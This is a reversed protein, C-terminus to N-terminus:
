HPVACVRLWSRAVFNKEPLEVTVDTYDDAAMQGPLIVDQYLFDPVVVVFGGGTHARLAARVPPSDLLRHVAIASTGVWGNPAPEVLGRHLAVRLRVRDDGLESNAQALAHGLGTLFEPIVVSEDIGAPLIAFQGDGQPQVDVASEDLGAASRAVALMRVLHHQIRAASANGHRSYGEVDAAVCLRVAAATPRGGGAEWPPAGLSARGPAPTGTGSEASEPEAPEPEAPPLPEVFPVADRLDGPIPHRRGRLSRAVDVHVTITGALTAAEAPAALLAHLVLNRPVPRNGDPDYYVWGFRHSQTGTPWPRAEGSRPLLRGLWDPRGAGAGITRAATDSAAFMGRPGYGLGLTDADMDLRIALIRPDALGVQLRATTYRHGVPLAALDFAFLVGFYREGTTGVRRRLPAPLDGAPVPYSLPRGCRVTATPDAGSGTGGRGDPPYLTVSALLDTPRIAPRDLDTTEVQPPAM